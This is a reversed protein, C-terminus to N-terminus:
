NQGHMKKKNCLKRTEEDEKVDDNFTESSNENEVNQIRKELIKRAGRFYIDNEFILKHFRRLKKVPQFRLM